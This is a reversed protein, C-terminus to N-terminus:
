CLGLLRESAVRSGGPPAWSPDKGKPQREEGKVKEKRERAYANLSEKTKGLDKKLRGTTEM